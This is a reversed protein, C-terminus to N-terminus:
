QPKMRLTVVPLEPSAGLRIPLGTMGLGRSIYMPFGPGEVLGRQYRGNRTFTLPAWGFFAVQGGHTHGCLALDVRGDPVAGDALDPCHGALLTLAGDPVAAFAAQYDPRGRDDDDLGVVAIVDAGSSTTGDPGVLRGTNILVDIGVQRMAQCYSEPGGGAYDHSGLVAFTPARAALPALMEALETASAAAGEITDGNLLVLDPRHELTREVVRRVFEARVFPGYHLDALMAVRFGDLAEPLRPLPVSIETVELRSRAKMPGLLLPSKM